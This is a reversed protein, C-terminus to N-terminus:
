RIEPHVGSLLYKGEGARGQVIAAEGTSYTAIVEVSHHQPFSCGGHYYLPLSIDHFRIVTARAGSKTEDNYPALHPGTVTGPFFALPRDAIVEDPTGPGYIISKGAYYAAACFGLYKGGGLVFNQIRRNREGQLTELYKCDEGGPMVIMVTKEEWFDEDFYKEEVIVVGYKSGFLSQFIYFTQEVCYEDAGYGGFILINKDQEDMSKRFRVNLEVIGEKEREWIKEMNEVENRLDFFSIQSPEGHNPMHPCFRRSENWTEAFVRDQLEKFTTKKDIRVTIGPFQMKMILPFECKVTLM